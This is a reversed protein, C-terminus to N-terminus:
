VSNRGRLPISEQQIEARVITERSRSFLGSKRLGLHSRKICYQSCQSKNTFNEYSNNGKIGVTMMAYLPIKPSDLINM